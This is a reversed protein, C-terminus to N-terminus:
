AAANCLKVGECILGPIPGVPRENRNPEVFGVAVLGESEWTDSARPISQQSAFGDSSVLAAVEPFQRPQGAFQQSRAVNLRDWGEAVGNVGRVARHVTLIQDYSDVMGFLTVVGQVVSVRIRSHDLAPTARLAACVDRQIEIDPKVTAFEMAPAPM